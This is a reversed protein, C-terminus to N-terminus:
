ENEVAKNVTQVLILDLLRGIEWLIERLCVVNKCQQKV